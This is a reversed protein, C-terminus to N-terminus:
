CLVGVLEFVLNLCGHQLGIYANYEMINYNGVLSNTATVIRAEFGAKSEQRGIIPTVKLMPAMVKSLPAEKKEV